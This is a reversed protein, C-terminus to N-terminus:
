YQASVALMEKNPLILHKKKQGFLPGIKGSAMLLNQFSRNSIKKQQLKKKKNKKHGSTYVSSARFLLFFRLPGTMRCSFNPLVVAMLIQKLTSNPLIKVQSSVSLHTQESKM